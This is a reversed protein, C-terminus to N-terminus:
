GGWGNFITDSGYGNNVGTGGVTTGYIGSGSGANGFLKSLTYASQVGSIGSNIANAAGAYGSARANAAQTAYNGVAAANATGDNAIQTAATQGIGALSSLRNFRTTKDTNFRNYANSYEGSAYDQSYRDLAKLSGGSLAGGRAAASHELAKSGEDMRFQYGPDKQFDALTFERNFEGGNATGAGLQGLATVGAQRWPAMDERNQEYQKQSSDAAYKAADAQTNSARRSADASILAGGVMGIAASVGFAM